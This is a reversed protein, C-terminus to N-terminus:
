GPERAAAGPDRQYYTVPLDRPSQTAEAACMAPQLSVYLRCGSATSGQNELIGRLAFSRTNPVFQANTAVELWRGEPLLGGRGRSQPSVLFLAQRGMKSSKTLAARYRQILLLPSAGM